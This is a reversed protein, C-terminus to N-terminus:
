SPTICACLTSEYSKCPSKSFSSANCMVPPSTNILSHCGTEKYWANLLDYLFHDEHKNIVQPRTTNDVHVVAPSTQRLQKSCQFIQTMFKGNIDSSWDIFCNPAINEAVVPGFPMFETRNLRVNISDNVDDKMPNALISRSCLARPGFESRGRIVGVVKHNKLLIIIKAIAEDNTEFISCHCNSLFNGDTENLQYDNGFKM